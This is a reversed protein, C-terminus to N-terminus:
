AFVDRWIKSFIDFESQDYGRRQLVWQLLGPNKLSAACVEQWVTKGSANKLQLDAGKEIFKDLLEEWEKSFTIDASILHLPTCGDKDKINPDAGADLLFLMAAASISSKWGMKKHLKMAKHLPTEVKVGVWNINAGAQLVMKMADIDVKDDEDDEEDENDENDERDEEPAGFLPGLWDRSLPNLTAGREILLRVTETFESRRVGYSKKEYTLRLATREESDMANVEAGADLLFRTCEYWGCQAAMSLPSDEENRAEIDAGFDLLMKIVELQGDLAAELLPTNDLYTLSDVDSGRELLLRLIQLNDDQLAHFIPPKTPPNTPAPNVLAGQALLFEVAPLHRSECALGLLTEQDANTEELIPHGAPILNLAECFGSAASGFLFGKLVTSNLDDAFADPFTHRLDDMLDISRMLGAMNAAEELKEMKEENLVTQSPTSSSDSPFPWLRRRVATRLVRVRLLHTSSFEDEEADPVARRWRRGWIARASYIGLGFRAIAAVAHEFLAPHSFTVKKNDRQVIERIWIGGKDTLRAVHHRAAAQDICQPVTRRLQRNVAALTLIDLPELHVLVTRLLENPFSQLGIM